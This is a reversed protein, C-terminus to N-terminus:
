LKEWIKNQIRIQRITVSRRHDIETGDLINASHCM